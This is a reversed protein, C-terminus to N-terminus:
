GRNSYGGNRSGYPTPQHGRRHDFRPKDANRPNPMMEIKTFDPQVSVDNTQLRLKIVRRIEEYAAVIWYGESPYQRIDLEGQTFYHEFPLVSEAMLTVIEENQTVKYWLADAVITRFGKIKKQHPVNPNDGNFRAEDRLTAVKRRLQAGTLIRYEEVLPSTQIYHWLGGVSHFTGLEPHVFPTNSNMDLFRGLKTKADNHINIHDVADAGEIKTSDFINKLLSSAPRNDGLSFLAMKNKPKVPQTEIQKKNSVIPKKKPRASRDEVQQLVTEPDPYSHEQRASEVPSKHTPSDSATEVAGSLGSNVVKVNVHNIGLEVTKPAANEIPWVPKTADVDRWNVVTTDAPLISSDTPQYPSEDVITHAVGMDRLSKVELTKQDDHCNGPCDPNCGTCEKEGSVIEVIQQSENFPTLVLENNALANALADAMATNTTTM